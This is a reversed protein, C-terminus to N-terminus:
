RRVFFAHRACLQARREKKTLQDFLATELGVFTVLTRARIDLERGEFGMEAFLSRVFRLRFRDVKRVLKAVGPEHSAWSRVPLEYKYLEKSSVAEMLLRLRESAPARSDGVVQAVTRTFHRDWYDVLCRIFDSRDQFHWYFSGKSVGLRSVLTDIRIKAGGNHALLDM